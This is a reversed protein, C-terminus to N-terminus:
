SRPILYIHVFDILLFMIKLLMCANKAHCGFIRISEENM